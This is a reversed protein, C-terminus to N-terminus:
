QLPRQQQQHRDFQQRHGQRLRGVFFGDTNRFFTSNNVFITGGGSTMAIARFFDTFTSNNITATGGNELRVGNRGNALTLDRITLDGGNFVQFLDVVRNQSTTRLIVGAGPASISVKSIIGLTNVVGITQKAAFTTADFVIADDEGNANAANIAELLTCDSADCAGDNTSAANNVTFTAAQVVSAGLTLASTLTLLPLARKILLM